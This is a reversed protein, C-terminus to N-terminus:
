RGAEDHDVEGLELNNVRIRATMLDNLLTDFLEELARKHDEEAAIKEDVAQLVTAIKKQERLPPLYIPLSKIKGQNISAQGVARSSLSRFIGVRRYHQFLSELFVSDCQANDPRVVLLNMGHLLPAPTGEYLASKGIHAESNIHSILIDGAQLRYKEQRDEHLADVFGVSTGDVRGNSITEIRTVPLGKGEKNQTDTLGNRMVEIVDVLSTEPWEEPVEGIETEKLEIEEAQDIPVPGYTFLYHMLSRRLERAAQIVAETREKAQQVIQLVGAIKKQEHLPPRVVPFALVIAKNVNKQTSQINQRALRAASHNLLYAAFLHDMRHDLSLALIAQNTAMPVVNIRAVGISAYMSVLVSGTPVLWASSNELGEATVTDNTAEVYLSTATMDGISLFPIDGDWYDAVSRRPTGGAKAHQALQGVPTVEWGEPLEGLETMRYGERVESEPATM